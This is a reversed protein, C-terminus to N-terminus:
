EAIERAEHTHAGTHTNLSIKTTTIIIIIVKTKDKLFRGPFNLFVYFTLPLSIFIEM